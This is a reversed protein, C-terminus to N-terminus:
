EEMHEYKELEWEMQRRLKRENLMWMNLPGISLLTMYNEGFSVGVMWHTWNITFRIRM